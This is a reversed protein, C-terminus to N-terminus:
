VDLVFAMEISPKWGDLIPCPVRFLFFKQFGVLSVQLNLIIAVKANEHKFLKYWGERSWSPAGKAM